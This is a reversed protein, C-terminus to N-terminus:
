WKGQDYTESILKWICREMTREIITKGLIRLNMMGNGIRKMIM